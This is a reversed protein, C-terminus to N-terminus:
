IQSARSNKLERDLLRVGKKYVKVRLFVQIDDRTDNEGM